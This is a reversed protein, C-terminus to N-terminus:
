KTIPLNGSGTVSIPLGAAPNATGLMTLGSIAFTPLGKVRPSDFAGNIGFEAFRRPTDIDQDLRTRNFGGRLENVVGRGFIRTHGIVLSRGDVFAKSLDNAPPPLPPPLTNVDDALSVRAFLHDGEGLKHDVRVDVQDSQVRQKPNYFHNAVNGPLNARPFLELLKAAVPDWRDRPVISDPFPQRIFGTGTPSQGTTAPDFIRTSGFRGERLADTPVTAIRPATSVIRTGEYSFFFFTRNRKIPGGTTGGFQNQLLLPKETDPPQFYPTADLASNRHFEFLSGHLQNTGSKITANVVAGAGQGYEASFTSTQVKFEQIADVSPKHTLASGNDFGVIHAKNDMGDLIYSNQIPRNGNAVFNDRQVTQYSPLVGAALM